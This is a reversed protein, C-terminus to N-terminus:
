TTKLNKTTADKLIALKTHYKQQRKRKKALEIMRDILILVGEYARIVRFKLNSDPLTKAHNIIGSFGFDLVTKILPATHNFDNGDGYADALHGNRYEKLNKLTNEETYFSQLNNILDFSTLGECDIDGFFKQNSKFTIECERLVRDIFDMKISVGKQNFHSNFYKSFEQKLVEKKTGISYTM